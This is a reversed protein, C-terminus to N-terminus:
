PSSFCSCCQFLEQLQKGPWSPALSLQAGFKRAESLHWFNLLIFELRPARDENTGLYLTRHVPQAHILSLQMNLVKALFLLQTWTNCKLALAMTQAKAQSTARVQYVRRSPRKPAAKVDSSHMCSVARHSCVPGNHLIPLYM